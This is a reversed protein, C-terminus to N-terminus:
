AIVRRNYYKLRSSSNANVTGNSYKLQANEIHLQKKSQLESIKIKKLKTLPERNEYWNEAKHPKDSQPLFKQRNIEQLKVM